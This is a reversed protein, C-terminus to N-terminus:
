RWGADRLAPELLSSSHMPATGSSRRQDGTMRPTQDIKLAPLLKESLGLLAYVNIDARQEIVIGASAALEIIEAENRETEMIEADIKKVEADREDPSLASADDAAADIELHIAKIMQPGFLWAMTALADVSEVHGGTESLIRMNASAFTLDDGNEIMRHLDPRGRAAHREVTATARQKAIVSPTPAAEVEALKARLEAVRARCTEVAEIHSQGKRLVAAPRNIPQLQRAGVETLLDFVHRVTTALDISRKDHGAGEIESLERRKSEVSAMAAEVFVDNKANPYPPSKTIKDISIQEALIVDHLDRRRRGREQAAAFAGELTVHLKAFRRRPEKPLADILKREDNNLM